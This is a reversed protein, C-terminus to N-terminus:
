DNTWVGGSYTWDDGEGWDILTASFNMSQLNAALKYTYYKNALWPDTIAISRSIEETGNKIFNITIAAGAPATQPVMFFVDATQTYLNGGSYSGSTWDGAKWNSFSKTFSSKHNHDSWSFTPKAPTGSLVPNFTCKGSGYVNTLSISKISLNTADFSGDDTSVAFRVQALPHYFMIDIKSDKPTRGTSSSTTKVKDGDFTRTEANGALLLDLEGDNIYDFQFTSGTYSTITIERGSDDDNVTDLDPFYSWFHMGIGNLWLQQTDFAWNGSSYSITTRFYEGAKGDKTGTNDTYDADAVGIIDFTGVTQLNGISNVSGKTKSVNVNCGIARGKRFPDKSCGCALLLLFAFLLYRKYM